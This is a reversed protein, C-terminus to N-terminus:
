SSAIASPRAPVHPSTGASVPNQARLLRAQRWSAKQKDANKGVLTFHILGLALSQHLLAHNNQAFNFLLHLCVNREGLPNTVLQELFLPFLSHPRLFEDIAGRTCTAGSLSSYSQTTILLILFWHLQTAVKLFKESLKSESSYIIKAFSTISIVFSTVACKGPSETTQDPRPSSQWPPKHRYQHYQIKLGKSKEAWKQISSKALAEGGEWLGGPWSDNQSDTVFYQVVSLNEEPNREKM